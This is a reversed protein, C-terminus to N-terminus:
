KEMNEIIDRVEDRTLNNNRGITGMVYSIKSEMSQEPTMPRDASERLMAVVQDESLDAHAMNTM